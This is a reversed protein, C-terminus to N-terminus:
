RKGRKLNDIIQKGEIICDNECGWLRGTAILEVNNGQDYKVVITNFEDLRQSTPVAKIVYNQYPYKLINESIEAIRKIRERNNINDIERQTKTIM